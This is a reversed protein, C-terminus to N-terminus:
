TSSSRVTLGRRRRTWWVLAVVPALLLVERGAAAFNHTWVDDRWWMRSIADFLAFPAIWFDHSFPWFLMVGFPPSSDAGLADMLPHSFWVAAVLLFTATKTRVGLTRVFWSHEYSGETATRVALAAVAAILAAGLSHTEQSHRGWLLDLDAATGLAALAAVQLGLARRGTAPRAIAWGVAVAGLAHGLPSPM